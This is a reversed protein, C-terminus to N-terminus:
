RVLARNATAIRSALARSAPHNPNLALAQELAHQAYSPRGGMWQAQALDCLLDATPRERETAQSFVRVADDHRGLASLALGELHLVQQPEDGPSHRDALAQLAVLAREPENLHRYTEAVLIAVDYNDPAYGLSKQYDALAQRPQGAASAVRGRLAWAPAFKPDLRLAKDAQRSAEHLQGLILNVEGTRVTLSPDAGALQGAEELQALAERPAGRHWLTEAYNRRADPDKASTAVARELLSEARVWDGREMANIGQQTLQRGMAVSQSVPGQNGLTRCGALALCFAALHLTQWGARAVRRPLGGDSTPAIAQGSAFAHRTGHKTSRSNTPM